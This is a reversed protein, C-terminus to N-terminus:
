FRWERILFLGFVSTVPAPRQDLTPTELVYRPQLSAEVRFGKPTRYQVAVGPPAAESASSLLSLPRLQAATYWRSQAWYRGAEIETGLAFGSVNGSALETQVDATGINFVDLKAARAARGEAEDVLVGLAIGAIQNQALSRAAGGVGGGGGGGSGVSSGGLQLLSSWSRGFALYSLLDSQSIPPQADSELTLRPARVTGGILLRINMAERAPMRVEYEATAQVTPNLENTGIFTASGRTIDFRKSLFTYVGRESNVVGEIALSEMGRDMHMRVWGDTYIEVNAEKSRVWTDRDVQVALDMRLNELLPNASPLLERQATLSTDAVNFLAPDGSSIVQRGEGEPLYIVGSRIRVQGNAYVRDFPGYVSFQIDARAEGQDNRLVRANTAELRLDFSPRSLSAFGVGGELRMPGKDAFGALSDIVLTDGALRLTGKLDRVRMGTPVVRFGGLDLALAGNLEPKEISGRVAVKGVAIGAVNSVVDTFKPLADLPLSDATVDVEIPANRPLRSGTVGSALNLPLRADATALRTGDRSAEAHATLRADAYQFTSRLDPIPTGGYVPDVVGVAGSFRPDRLTGDFKLGLSLRGQAQLDSQALSLVDGIQFDTVVARLSAPAGAERPIFGDVFVRGEAGNRLDLNEVAIGRNGWKIASPGTGRWTTTDFRLRVDDLHVEKHGPHLRYDAHLAYERGEEQRLLVQALGGSADMRHSVRTEVHEMAFGAARVTDLNAALVLSGATSPADVWAYEVRAANVVNGNYVIGQGAARGRLAFAKTSGSATGALWVAGALSDKRVVTPTDVAALTPAPAGTAAREVETAKAIAASDARARALVKATIAPRPTVVGTDRPLWRALAGLSDIAVAYSVTGTHPAALGFTGGANARMGPGAVLLTDLTLVGGRASLALRASDVAVDDYRSGEAALAVQTTLTKPDTGRGRAAATLSLQTPPAKSTLLSADFVHMAVRMDYSPVSGLGVRGDARLRGGGTMSLDAAVRLNEFPGSLTIPGSVAGRLGLAPAFEGVTTALALPTARLDVDVYNMKEAPKPGFGLTARGVLHSRQGDDVHVLDAASGFWRERTGDLTLIGSLTGEMPFDPLFARALAVQAPLFRLKLGKAHSLGDDFGVTGLAVVHSRGSRPEDLTLDTDLHLDTLAGALAIRGTARGNVPMEFDEILQELLHTDFDAVRLRTDHFSVDEALTFGLDGTLHSRDVRVDANAIRYTQKEEPTEVWHMEFDLKGGGRSPLRPYAWRFDALSARPSRFVFQMEEAKLLWRGDGAVDSGPFSARVGRFWLSDDDIEFDGALDRIEGEPPRFPALVGRLSAVRILRSERGPEELLLLPFHGTLGRFDSIKQLGEPVEVVRHRLGGALALRIVSDRAAGTLSDSPSYATRLVVRGDLVRVDEFRLWDGFGPMTDGPVDPTTDKPFIRVYNWEKGPRKDLVVVPRVLTVDTFHLKKGILGPISYRLSAREVVLFANGASDTISLNDLTLGTLLNGSVRGLRVIGHAQKRLQELAFRRVRERGWDTNTFLFVAGGAVLLLVLVVAGVIRAALRSRRHPRARRGDEDHPAWPRGPARTVDRVGDDPWGGGATEDPATPADREVEDNAAM